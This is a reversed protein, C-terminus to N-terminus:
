RDRWYMVAGTGFFLLGFGGIAREKLTTAGLAMWLAALAMLGGIVAMVRSARRERPSMPPPRYPVFPIPPGDLRERLAEFPEGPGSPLSFFRRQELDIQVEVREGDRRAFRLEVCAAGAFRIDCPETMHPWEFLAPGDPLAKLRLTSYPPMRDDYQTEFEVCTTGQPSLARSCQGNDGLGYELLVCGADRLRRLVLPKHGHAWPPMTETWHRGGPVRVWPLEQSDNCDFRLERGDDHQYVM